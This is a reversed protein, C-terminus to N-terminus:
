HCQFAVRCYNISGDRECYARYLDTKRGAYWFSHDRLDLEITWPLHSGLSYKQNEPRHLVDFEHRGIERCSSDYIRAQTMGIYHSAFWFNCYDPGTGSCNNQRAVLAHAASQQSEDVPTPAASAVAALAAVLSAPTFKM